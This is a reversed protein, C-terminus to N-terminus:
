EPNGVVVLGILQGNIELQVQVLRSPRDTAFFGGARFSDDYRDKFESLDLTLSEGVDLGPFDRAYWRNAWIRGPPLTRATTNTMRIITDDRFVQVDISGSQPIAPFEPGAPIDGSGSSCAGLALCAAAIAAIVGRRALGPLARNSSAPTASAPRLSIKM